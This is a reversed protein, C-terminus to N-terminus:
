VPKGDRTSRMKLYQGGGVNHRLWAAGAGRPRGPRFAGFRGADSQRLDLGRITRAGFFDFDFFSVFFRKIKGLLTGLKSVRNYAGLLREDRQRGDYARVRMQKEKDYQRQIRQNTKRRRVSQMSSKTM